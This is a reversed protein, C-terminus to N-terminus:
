FDRPTYLPIIKPGPNSSPKVPPVHEAMPLPKYEIMVPRHKISMVAWVIFGGMVMGLLWTLGIGVLLLTDDTLNITEIM